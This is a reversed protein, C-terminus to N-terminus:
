LCAIYEPGIGCCGGFIVAGHSEWEKVLRQYHQPTIESRLKANDRNAQADVSRPTFANAYGGLLLSPAVINRQPAVAAIAQGIVEPVSCNFLLAEAGSDDALALAGDLSEGSRLRPEDLEPDDILSFSLWLPKSGPTDTDVSAVAAVVARAEDLCGMTEAQWLDVYPELAHVILPYVRRAVTEDYHDPRYSGSLPPLSGGVRVQSMGDTAQRALQGALATLRIGDEAFRHEGLHFPVVAYNNTTIVQAGASIFSRHVEVVTDPAQMLALASWEPQRFPAGVRKLERGMGGDLIIRNAVHM